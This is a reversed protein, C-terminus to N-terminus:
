WPPFIDILSSDFSLSSFQLVRSQEEPEPLRPV